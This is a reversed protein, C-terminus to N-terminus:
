YDDGRKFRQYEPKKPNNMKQRIYERTVGEADAIEQLSRYKKGNVTYSYKPPEPAKKPITACVYDPYDFSSLRRKMEYLPVGLKKVALIISKYEVGTVSCPIFKQRRYKKPHHESVYRPYNSSRLRCRVVSSYLNLARAAETESKYRIGDIICPQKRGRSSPPKKPHKESVHDPYDFSTLRYRMEHYPIGLDKSASMISKYEVGEIICLHKRKSPLPAKKPIKDCAYDPYDYSALRRNMKGLSIGLDEAASRISQYEIGAVSCPIGISKKDRHEEKRYKSVYEPHNPSQLYNRLKRIGIGLAKVAAYESKYYVGNITCSYRYDDAVKLNKKPRHESVYGLYNPSQLRSRVAQVGIGVAKAAAYESEYHVGDITCSKRKM